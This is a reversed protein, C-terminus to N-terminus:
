TRPSCPPDAIVRVSGGHRRHRSAYCRRDAQGSPRWPVPLSPTNRRRWAPRPRPSPHTRRSRLPHGRFRAALQFDPQEVSAFYAARRCTPRRVLPESAPRGLRTSRQRVPLREEHRGGDMYGCTGPGTVPGPSCRCAPFLESVSATPRTPGRACVLSSSTSPEGGSVVSDCLVARIEHMATTAQHFSRKISCDVTIM